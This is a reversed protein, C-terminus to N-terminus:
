VSSTFPPDAEMRLLRVLQHGADGAGYILVREAQTNGRTGARTVYARYGWRGAAMLLLAVPPTLVAAARPFVHTGVIGLFIVGLLMSVLLTSTALGLTEDFSATKYRGRYLMMLAGIIVQLVCALLAYQVVAIHQVDSLNFNYRSGVVAAVALLWSACDWLVRVFQRLLPRDSLV